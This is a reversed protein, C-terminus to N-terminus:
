GGPAPSTKRRMSEGKLGISHKNHLLRDLIADAITPEGLYDHWLETSLQATILVSGGPIRDDIIELLDQRGRDTITHTGWDDLILLRAKALRTRLAPLSGDAHAVRADDLLDVLRCFAVSHGKRIAERALACGLWTKGTGTPGTIVVHQGREVWQCTLLDMVQRKDIGRKASFDIDEPCASPFKLKASKLLRNIRRNERQSVEADVMLGLRDDFSMSLMNPNALQTEYAQAMGPLRLANLAQRTQNVLM